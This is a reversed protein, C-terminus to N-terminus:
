RSRTLDLALILPRASDPSPRWPGSRLRAALSQISPWSFLKPQAVSRSFYTYSGGGRDRGCCPGAGPGTIALPSIRGPAPPDRNRPTVAGVPTFSLGSACASAFSRSSLECGLAG